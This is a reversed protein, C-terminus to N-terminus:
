KPTAATASNPVIVGANFGSIAIPYNNTANLVSIVVRRNLETQSDDDLNTINMLLEFQVPFMTNTALRYYDLLTNNAVTVAGTNDVSFTTSTNGSIIAYALNSTSNPPVTGAFTGNPAHEVVSLRTPLSGGSVWGAISYYGLSAYSSFGN